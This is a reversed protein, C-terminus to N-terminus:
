SDGELDDDNDTNLEDIDLFVLFSEADALSPQGDDTVLVRVSIPDLLDEEAPTWRVVANNNDLQEIEASEPADDSDLFFTLTDSTNPDTARVNVELEVGIMATQDPIPELDPPLNFAIEAAEVFTHGRGEECTRGYDTYEGLADVQWRYRSKWADYYIDVGEEMRDLIEAGRLLSGYEERSICVSDPEQPVPSASRYPTLM